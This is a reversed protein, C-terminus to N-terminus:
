PFRCTANLTGGPTAVFECTMEPPLYEPETYEITFKTVAPVANGSVLKMACTQYIAGDAKTVRTGVGLYTGGLDVDKVGGTPYACQAGFGATIVSDAANDSTAAASLPFATLAFVTGILIVAIVFVKKNM